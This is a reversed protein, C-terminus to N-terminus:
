LGDVILSSMSLGIALLAISTCQPLRHEKLVLTVMHEDLHASTSEEVIPAPAGRLVVDLLVDPTPLIIEVLMGGIQDVLFSFENISQEFYKWPLEFLFHCTVIEDLGVFVHGLGNM